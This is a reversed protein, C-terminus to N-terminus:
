PLKLTALHIRRVPAMMMPDPPAITIHILIQKRGAFSNRLMSMPIRVSTASDRVLRETGTEDSFRISHHWQSVAKERYTVDLYGNRKWDTASLSVVHMTEDSETASLIVKKNLVIHWSQQARLFTPGTLLLFLTCFWKM